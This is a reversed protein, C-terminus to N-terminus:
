EISLKEKLFPEYIVKGVGPEKRGDFITEEPDNVGWWNERADIDEMNFDGVRINYNSNSYINNRRITLGGGKERIFIGTENNFIDNEKILANGRFIRMGIKNEIFQSGTIEVPGSRFRIGGQNKIFRSNNIKLNTFHSHVAWTAYQFDCYSFVSGEAHEILIEDWLSDKEKKLSTFVIRKDEKGEALIKSEFVRMGAGKSFLVKTGTEIKLVAGGLVAVPSQILINDHWTIDARVAKVPWSYVMPGTKAPSSIVRGRGPDDSKDYIVKDANRGGWWNMPVTIDTSGNNEVAYLGNKVISNETITGAFSQIGIGREGNESIYNGKIVAGTALINIGNFGSGQIFNGSLDVNDSEKLSIGTQFNNSVVNRSFRGFFSNNIMLGSRNCDILNERVITTGERIKLGENVNNSINNNRITLTTRFFNIGNINNFIHNGTFVIESDRAKVGSKNNFIYNGRMEVASEQFQVARYNNKIVSKNVLVNSFHFHLGRYADEIQCFEVLNQAGDSNMINVADWDGPGRYREASRFIVPNEKTGKAILVGQMLLGNEGIGDGNTDKKRFEVVTGPVIILRVDEPVRVLGNIEIRGKWVTDALLVADEYKKSIATNRAKYDMLLDSNSRRCSSSSRKYVTTQRKKKIGSTIKGSSGYLYIDKKINNHIVSNGYTVKADNLEFVGYKNGTIRSNRIRV